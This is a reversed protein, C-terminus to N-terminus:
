EGSHAAIAIPITTDIYTEDFPETKMLSRNVVPVLQTEAERRDIKTQLSHSSTVFKRLNFSGDLLLEKSGQYFQYAQEEDDAGGVVDDVYTSQLLKEVLDPQTETYQKVHHHITANLLFPSSSVGFVM